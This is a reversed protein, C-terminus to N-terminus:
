IYGNSQIVSPSKTLSGGITCKFPPSASYPKTPAEAPTTKHLYAARSMFAASTRVYMEYHYLEKAMSWRLSPGALSSSIAFSHLNCASLPLEGSNVIIVAM